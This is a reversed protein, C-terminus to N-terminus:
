KNGPVQHNKQHIKACHNILLLCLAKIWGPDSDFIRMIAFKSVSSAPNAGTHLTLEAKISHLHATTIVVVWGVFETFGVYDYHQM